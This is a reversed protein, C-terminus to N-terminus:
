LCRRALMVPKLSAGDDGVFLDYNACAERMAVIATIISTRVSGYLSWELGKKFVFWEVRLMTERADPLSTMGLDECSLRGEKELFNLGMLSELVDGKHEVNFDAAIDAFEPLENAKIVEAYLKNGFDMVHIQETGEETASGDDGYQGIAGLHSLDKMHEVGMTLYLFRFLFALTDVKQRLAGTELLKPIIIEGIAHMWMVTQEVFEKETQTAIVRYQIDAVTSPRHIVKDLLDIISQDWIADRGNEVLFGRADRLGLSLTGSTQLDFDSM